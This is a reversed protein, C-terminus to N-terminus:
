KKLYNNPNEGFDKIIKLQKKKLWELDLQEDAMKKYQKELISNEVNMFLCRTKNQSTCEFEIGNMLIGHLATGGGANMGRIFHCVMEKSPYFLLGFPNKKNEFKSYKKQKFEFTHYDGFGIMAAVDMILKYTEEFKKLKFTRMYPLTFTFGFHWGYLYLQQIAKKGQKHADLTMEKLTKLPLFTMPQGVFDIEGETFKLRGSILLKTLFGYM